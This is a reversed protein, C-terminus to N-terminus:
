IILIMGKARVQNLLKDVQRQIKAYKAFDDTVNLGSQKEKLDTIESRM